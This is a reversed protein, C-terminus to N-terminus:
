SGPVAPTRRRRRWGTRVRVPRGPGGPRCARRPLRSPRQGRVLRVAVRPTRGYGASGARHRMGRHPWRRWRRPDPTRATSRIRRSSGSPGRRPSGGCCWRGADCGVARVSRRHRRSGVVVRDRRCRDAAAFVRDLSKRCLPFGFRADPLVPVLCRKIAVRRRGSPGITLVRLSLLAEGVPRM